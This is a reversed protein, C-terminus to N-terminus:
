SLLDHAGMSTEQHLACQESSWSKTILILALSQCSPNAKFQEIWQQVANVSGGLSECDLVLLDVQQEHIQLTPLVENSHNVFLSYM